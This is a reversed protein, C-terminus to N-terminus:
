TVAVMALQNGSPMKAPPDASVGNFISTYCTTYRYILYHVQEIIQWLRAEALANKVLYYVLGMKPEKIPEEAQEQSTLIVIPTHTLEPCEQFKQYVARGEEDLQALDLVILDFYKQSIETLSRISSDIWCVQCGNNELWQKLKSAQHPCDAVLLISPPYLTYSYALNSLKKMIRVGSSQNFTSGIQVEM